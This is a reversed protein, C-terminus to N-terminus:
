CRGAPPASSRGRTWGERPSSATTPRRWGRRAWGSASRPSSRSRQAETAAAASTASQLEQQSVFGRPALAQARELNAKALGRAAEAQAVPRADIPARVVVPVDEAAVTLATVLPPPRTRAPPPAGPCAAALAAVGALAVPHAAARRNM